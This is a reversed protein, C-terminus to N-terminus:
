PQAKSNEEDIIPDMPINSSQRQNVGERGDMPVNNSQVNYVRGNEVKEMLKKWLGTEVAIVGGILVGQFPM